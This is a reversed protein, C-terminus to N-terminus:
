FDDEEDEEDRYVVDDEWMLPSGYNTGDGLAIYVGSEKSDESILATVADIRSILPYNPQFAGRIEIDGGVDPNDRLDELKEILENLKM